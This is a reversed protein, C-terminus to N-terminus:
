SWATRAGARSTATSASAARARRMCSICVDPRARAIRPRSQRAARSRERDRRLPSGGRHRDGEAISVDITEKHVDLGIFMSRKGM